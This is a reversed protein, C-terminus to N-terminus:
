PACLRTLDSDPDMLADIVDFHHRGEVHVARIDAGLGSWINAILDTQRLFEPREDAGVWAVCRVNAMPTSLAPSESAAEADDLQLTANMATRLLPRLDHLGSISAVRAIRARLAEALPADRCVQRMVLHGGASHGALHIPGAVRGAAFALAQSIEVGIQSLRAEPALTYSPMAVAWGRALGGAALHSWSSKDFSKWYGGHVFLFLGRADGEPHFLDLRQRPQPGYALDLEARGARGLAARMQQAWEAWRPPYDQANAIYAGNAYADDWDKIM